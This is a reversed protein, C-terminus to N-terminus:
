EIDRVTLIALDIPGRELYWEDNGCDSRYTLQGRGNLSNSDVELIVAESLKELMGDISEGFCERLRRLGRTSKWSEAFIQAYGIDPTFSIRDFEPGFKGSNQMAYAVFAKCTGHYLKELIKKMRRNRYDMLM